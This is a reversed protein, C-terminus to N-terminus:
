KRFELLSYVMVVVPATVNRHQVVNVILEIDHSSFSLSISSSSLTNGSRSVSLHGCKGGAAGKVTAATYFQMKQWM